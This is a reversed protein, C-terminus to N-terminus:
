MDLRSAYIKRLQNGMIRTASKRGLMRHMFFDGFKNGSGTVVSPKRGLAQLAERAVDDPTQVKPAFWGSSAPKSELYNPTATAGAMCSLVDVGRPKWEDWLSEGLLRDFAKTASYTSLFASGQLGAMSAMIVIGGSKRAIMRSGFAHVTQLLSTCNVEVLTQLHSWEANEFNGIHSFAANYVLFGIDTDKLKEVLSTTEVRNSLDTTYLQSIIGTEQYIEEATKRLPEERRAVLVPVIGRRAIEQAFAAGIGESAGLILAYPGYRTQFDM